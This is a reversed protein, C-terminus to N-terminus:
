APACNADIWAFVVDAEPPDLGLGGDAIAAEFGAPDVDFDADAFYDLIERFSDATAGVESRIEGPATEEADALLTRTRAVIERADDPSATSFDDMEELEVNIECFRAVDTGGNGDDGCAVLFVAAIGLVAMIRAMFLPGM